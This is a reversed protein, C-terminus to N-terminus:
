RVPSAPADDTGNLLESARAVEAKTVREDEFHTNGFAFSVRQAEVEEPTMRARRAKALLALLKDTM